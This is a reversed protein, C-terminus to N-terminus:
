GGQTSCAGGAGSMGLSVDLSLLLRESRAADSGVQQRGIRIASALSRACLYGGGPFSYAVRPAARASM